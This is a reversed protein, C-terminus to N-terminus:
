NKYNEKLVKDILEQQFKYPEDINPHHASNEFWVIEKSPARLIKCYEVVLEPACAAIRDHRGEFFYIPVEINQIETLINKEYTSPNKGICERSFRMSKLYTDLYGDYYYDSEKIVDMMNKEGVYIGNFRNILERSIRKDKVVKSLEITDNEQKLKDIFWNLTIEQSKKDDIVQGVGIFAYYNDPYKEALHIGLISGFSHGIIFIKTQNYRTKLIETLQNADYLIKDFSVDSENLSDNFSLGAGRQDWHVITFSDYAKNLCYHNLFMESTGPGGHLWLLIPNNLNNSQVMVKQELGNIKVDFLTDIKPTQSYGIKTLLFFIILIDLTKMSQKINQQVRNQNHSVAM